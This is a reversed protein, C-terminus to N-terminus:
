PPRSPESVITAISKVRFITRIQPVDYAPSIFFDTKVIM